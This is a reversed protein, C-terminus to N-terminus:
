LLLRSKRNKFRGAGLPTSRLNFLAEGDAAAAETEDADTAEDDQDGTDDYDTEESDTVDDTEDSETEDAEVDDGDAEDTASETEADIDADANDDTSLGSEETPTYCWKKIVPKKVKRPNTRMRVCVEKPVDVCNERPKLRFYKAHFPFMDCVTM